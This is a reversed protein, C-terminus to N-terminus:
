HLLLDIDSYLLIWMIFAYLAMVAAGLLWDERKM